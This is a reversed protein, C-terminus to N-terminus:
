ELKMPYPSIKQGEDQLDDNNSVPCKKVKHLGYNWLLSAYQMRHCEVKFDVSPVDMGESLYEVYGAVFAGYDPHHKHIHGTVSTEVNAYDSKKIVVAEVIPDLTATGIDVSCGEIDEYHKHIPSRNEDFYADEPVDDTSVNAISKDTCEFTSVVYENRISHYRIDYTGISSNEIM